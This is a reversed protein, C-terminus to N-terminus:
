GIPRSQGLIVNITKNLSFQVTQDGKRNDHFCFNKDENKKEMGLGVHCCLINSENVQRSMQILLDLEQSANGIATERKESRYGSVM